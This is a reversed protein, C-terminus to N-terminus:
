KRLFYAGTRYCFAEMVHNGQIFKSEALDAITRATKLLKYYGRTTLTNHSLCSDLFQEAESDLTCYDATM